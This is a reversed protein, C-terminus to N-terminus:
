SIKFMSINRVFFNQLMSVQLAQAVREELDELEFRTRDLGASSTSELDLAELITRDLDTVHPELRIRELVSPTRPTEDQLDFRMPDLITKATLGHFDSSVPDDMSSSYPLLYSESWDLSRPTRPMSHL